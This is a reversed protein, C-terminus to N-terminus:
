VLNCIENMLYIYSNYDFLIIFIKKKKKMFLTNICKIIPINTGYTFGACRSENDVICNIYSGMYIDYCMNLLINARFNHCYGVIYKQQLNYELLKNHFNNKHMIVSIYFTYYLETSYVNRELDNLMFKIMNTDTTNEKRIEFLYTQETETIFNLVLDNRQCLIKMSNVSFYSLIMHSLHNYNKNVVMDKGKTEIILISNTDMMNKCMKLFAHPYEICELVDQVIIIDFPGAFPVTGKGRGANALLTGDECDLDTIHIDFLNFYSYDELFSGLLNNCAVENAHIHLISLTEKGADNELYRGLAFDRLENSFEKSNKSLYPHCWVPETGFPIMETGFPIMETNYSYNLQVHFCNQCYCVHLPWYNQKEHIYHTYKHVLPQYGFNFLSFVIQNCIYCRYIIKNNTQM